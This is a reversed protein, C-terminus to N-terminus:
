PCSEEYTCDVCDTIMIPVGIGLDHYCLPGLCGPLAHVVEHVTACVSQECGEVAYCEAADCDSHATCPSACLEPPERMGPFQDWCDSSSETDTDTDADTDIDADSAPEDRGKGAGCAAVAVVLLASGANM